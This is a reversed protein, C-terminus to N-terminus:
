DVSMEEYGVNGLVEKLLVRGVREVGGVIHEGEKLNGVWLHSIMFFVMGENLTSSEGIVEFVVTLSPLSVEM